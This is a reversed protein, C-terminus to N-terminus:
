VPIIRHEVYSKIRKTERMLNLACIMGSRLVRGDAIAEEALTCAIHAEPRPHPSFITLMRWKQKIRSYDSLMRHKRTSERCCDAVYEVRQGIVGGWAFSSVSARGMQKISTAAM